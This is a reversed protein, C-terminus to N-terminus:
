GAQFRTITIRGRNQKREYRFYMERTNDEILSGNRDYINLIFNPKRYIESNALASYAVTIELLSVESSRLAPSPYPNIRPEFGFPRSYSAVYRLDTDM